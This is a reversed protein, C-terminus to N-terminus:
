SSVVARAVQARDRVGLKRRINSVHHRVTSESLCLRDAIEANTFGGAVLKLVAHERTSLEDPDPARVVDILRRVQNNLESATKVTDHTDLVLQSMGRRGARIDLEGTEWLILQGLQDGAEVDLWTAAKDRSGSSDRLSARVGAERLAPAEEDFWRHLRELLTVRSM